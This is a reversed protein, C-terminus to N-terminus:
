SSLCQLQYVTFFETGIPVLVGTQQYTALSGVSGVHTVCVSVLFSRCATSEHMGQKRRQKWWIQLCGPAQLM